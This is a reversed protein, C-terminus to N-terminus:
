ATKREIVLASKPNLLSGSLRTEILYKNQNFDIDFDEFTSIQGGKDAGYTYDSPNVMIGLLDATFAPSTNTRQVGELVEVEIINAVRLDSALEAVSKYIRRDTTDRLLLMGTLVANTTYLNPTGTGKYNVRAVQIADIIDLYDTVTVALSLYTVFLPDDGYIPRIKSPDIADDDTGFLRGDGVLAARAVEEDLMFRMERWMWNVVNFDTIDVIDDRDLKQKKYVTTPATERKLMAFVQEVKQNGTIYGKARAADPTLDAWLKKIRSFPTHRTSSMWGSVWDMRRTQFDPEGDQRADPFLYSINDIGYTGAHALFAEKFSGLKPMDEFVAQSFEAIQAHTLSPTNEEQGEFVNKKMFTEGETNSQSLNGADGMAQAILAYMVNRQKETMGNVVDGVTEDDATAPTDAHKVETKTDQKMEEEGINIPLMMSVVAEEESETESGDSHALTIHEITAGPNAGSLVLSVERIQGEHVLNKKEVLKNAYISMSGIDGHQVLTKAQQGAASDNFYGYAYVGDDRHELIAHGLVNTPDNHLHQWVLPIRQGDNAKFAGKQITRGDACLLGYKTAYGSFDYKNDAM